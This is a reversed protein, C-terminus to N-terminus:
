VRFGLIRGSFEECTCAACHMAPRRSPKHNVRLRFIRPAPFFRTAVHHEHLANQPKPPKPNAHKKCHSGLVWASLSSKRSNNNDKAVEQPVSKFNHERGGPQKQVRRQKQLCKPFQSLLSRAHARIPDGEQYTFGGLGKRGM